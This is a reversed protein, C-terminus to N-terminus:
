INKRDLCNYSSLQETISKFYLESYNDENNIYSPLNSIKDTIKKIIKNYISMLDIDFLKKLYNEKKENTKKKQNYLFQSPLNYKDLESKNIWFGYYICDVYVKEM